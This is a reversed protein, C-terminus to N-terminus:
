ACVLLWVPIRPPTPYPLLGVRAVMCRSCVASRLLPDCAVHYRFMRLYASAALCPARLRVGIRLRWSRSAIPSLPTHCIDQAYTHPCIFLHSGCTRVM